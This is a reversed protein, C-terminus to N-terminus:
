KEKRHRPRRRARQAEAKQCDPCPQDIYEPCNDKPWVGLRQHRCAYMVVAPKYHQDLAEHVAKEDPTM